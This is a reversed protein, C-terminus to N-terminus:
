VIPVLFFIPLAFKFHQIKKKIYIYININNIEYNSNM